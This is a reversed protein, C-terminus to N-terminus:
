RTWRRHSRRPRPPPKSRRQKREWARAMSRRLKTLDMTIKRYTPHNSLEHPSRFFDQACASYELSFTYLGISLRLVVSLYTCLSFKKARSVILLTLYRPCRRTNKKTSFILSPTPLQVKRMGASVERLRGGRRRGRWLCQKFGEQRQLRESPSLRKSVRSKRM